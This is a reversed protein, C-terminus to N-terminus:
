EEKLPVVEFTDPTTMRKVRVTAGTPLGEGNTFANFETNTKDM